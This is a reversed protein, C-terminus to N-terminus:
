MNTYFHEFAIFMDKTINESDKYEEYFDNTIEFIDDIHTGDRICCGIYNINMELARSADIQSAYIKGRVCVNKITPQVGKHLIVKDCKDIIIDGIDVRNAIRENRSKMTDVDDDLKDTNCDCCCSVVNGLVYGQSPVVRDIGFWTTPSRHCYKCDSKILIDFDKKTLEFAVGKNNAKTKYSWLTPKNKHIFWINIDDDAYVGRARYYSKKIFTSVDAAGKSNNCGQCCGVCNEITHDLTSDVRDITTAMDGCYFCGQVVMEFMVDSTFDDSYPHKSNGSKIINCWMDWKKKDIIEGITISDCAHQKHDEYRKTTRAQIIEKKKEHRKADYEKKKAPDKYGM